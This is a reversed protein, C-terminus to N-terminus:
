IAGKTLSAIFRTEVAGGSLGLGTAVDERHEAGQAMREIGGDRRGPRKRGRLALSEASLARGERM